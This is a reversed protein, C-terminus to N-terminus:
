NYTYKPLDKWSCNKCSVKIAQSEKIVKFNECECWPCKRAMNIGYLGMM